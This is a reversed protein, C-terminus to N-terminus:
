PSSNDDNGNTGSADEPVCAGLWLAEGGAALLTAPLIWMAFTQWVLAGSLLAGRRSLGLGVALVIAPPELLNLVVGVRVWRKTPTESAMRPVSLRGPWEALIRLGIGLSLGLAAVVLIPVVSFGGSGVVMALICLNNVFIIATRGWWSRCRLLPAVIRQIWWAVVRVPLHRPDHAMAWGIVAAVIVLGTGLAARLWVAALVALADPLM